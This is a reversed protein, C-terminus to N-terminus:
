KKFAEEYTTRTARLIGQITNGSPQTRGILVNFVSNYNVGALAAFDIFTLQNEVLFKRINPYVVKRTRRIWREERAQYSRYLQDVRQRSIGFRDGIEQLTM